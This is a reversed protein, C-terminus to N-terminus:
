KAVRWVEWDARLLEAVRIEADGSDQDDLWVLRDKTKDCIYVACDSTLNSLRMAYSKPRGLTKILGLACGVQLSKYCLEKLLTHHYEVSM